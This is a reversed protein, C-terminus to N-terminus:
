PTLEGLRLAIGAYPSDLDVKFRFGNKKSTLEPSVGHWFLTVTQGVFDTLWSPAEALKVSLRLPVETAEVSFKKSSEILVLHGWTRVTAAGFVVRADLGLTTIDYPRRLDRVFTFASEYTQTYNGITLAQMGREKSPMQMWADVVEALTGPHLAPVERVARSLQLLEAQTPAQSKPKLAPQPGLLNPIPTKPIQAPRPKPTGPHLSSETSRGENPCGSIHRKKACFYTNRKTRAHVKALCIEHPCYFAFDGTAKAARAYEATIKTELEWCLAETMLEDRMRKKLITQVDGRSPFVTGPTALEPRHENLARNHTLRTRAATKSVTEM